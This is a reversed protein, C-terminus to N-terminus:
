YYEKNTNFQNYVYIVMNLEVGVLCIILIMWYWNDVKYLAKAAKKSIAAIQYTGMPQLTPYWDDRIRYIIFFMDVLNWAEMRIHLIGSHKAAMNSIAMKITNRNTGM